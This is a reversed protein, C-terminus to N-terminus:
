LINLASTKLFYFLSNFYLTRCPMKTKKIVIKKREVIDHLATVIAKKENKMQTSIIEFGVFGILSYFIFISDIIYRENPYEAVAISLFILAFM